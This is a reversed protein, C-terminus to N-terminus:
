AKIGKFLPCKMIINAYSLTVCGHNHFHSNHHLHCLLKIMHIHEPTGQAIKSRRRVYLWTTGRGISAVLILDLKYNMVKVSVDLRWSLEMLSTVQTGTKKWIFRHRLCPSLFPCPSNVRQEGKTKGNNVTFEPLGNVWIKHNMVTVDFHTRHRRLDGADRNNVWDNIWACILSFMLAGRWQGKHSSNVPSRHIGRVFTWYRPSHKWKIVDEHAKSACSLARLVRECWWFFRLGYAGNNFHRLTNRLLLIVNLILNIVKNTSFVLIRRGSYYISQWKMCCLKM